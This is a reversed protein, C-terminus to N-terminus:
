YHKLLNNNQRRVEDRHRESLFIMNALRSAKKFARREFVVGITLWAAILIVVLLCIIMGVMFSNNYVNFGMEYGGVSPQTVYEGSDYWRNLFFSAAAIFVIMIVIAIKSIKRNLRFIRPIRDFQEEFLENFVNDTELGM